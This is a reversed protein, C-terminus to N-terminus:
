NIVPLLNWVSHPQGGSWSCYCCNIHGTAPPTCAKQLLIVCVVPGICTLSPTVAQKSTTWCYDVLTSSTYTYTNHSNLHMQHLVYLLWYQPMVPLVVLIHACSSDDALLSRAHSQARQINNCKVQYRVDVFQCCVVCCYSTQVALITTSIQFILSQARLRKKCCTHAKRSNLAEGISFRQQQTSILSDSLQCFM